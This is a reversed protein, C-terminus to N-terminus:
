KGPGFPRQGFYNNQSGTPAFNSQFQQVAPNGPTSNPGTVGINTGPTSTTQPNGFGQVRGQTGPSMNFSGQNAGHVKSKVANIRNKISSALSTIEKGVQPNLQAAKHLFPILSM